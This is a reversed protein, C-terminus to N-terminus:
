GYSDCRLNVTSIRSWLRSIRSPRFLLPLSDSSRAMEKAATAELDGGENGGGSDSRKDDDDEEDDDHGEDITDVATAQVAQQLIRQRVREEMDKESVADAVVAEPLAAAATATATTQPNTGEGIRAQLSRTSAADDDDDDGSGRNTGGMAHAGVTRMTEINPARM